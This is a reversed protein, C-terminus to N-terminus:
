ASSGASTSTFSGSDHAQPRRLLWAVDDAAAIFLVDRPRPTPRDLRLSRDDPSVSLEVQEAYTGSQYIRNEEEYRAPMSERPFPWPEQTIASYASRAGPLAAGGFGPRVGNSRFRPSARAARARPACVHPTRRWGLGLLTHAVGMAFLIGIRRLYVSTLHAGRESARTLQITFGLGFLFSFISNFKGSFFTNVIWEAAKDWWAPFSRSGGGLCLGLKRCWAFQRHSHGSARLWAVRRPRRHTGRASGADTYEYLCCRSFVDAGREQHRAACPGTPSAPVIDCVM